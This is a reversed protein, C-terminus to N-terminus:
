CDDLKEVTALCYAKLHCCEDVFDDELDDGDNALLNNAKSRLITEELKRSSQVMQTLSNFKDQYENYAEYKWRFEVIFQNIIFLFINIKFSERDDLQLVMNAGRDDYKKNRKHARKLDKEYNKNESM